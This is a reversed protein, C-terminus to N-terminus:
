AGISISSISRLKGVVGPLVALFYDVEQVTNFRGLTIRLSGRAQIPNQGLASLVHSPKNEADNSSCASGSSVAIGLDDLLLLLRIGEGEYGQFGFNIHNALRPTRPGNLYAQPIDALVRTIIRERLGTLREVEGEFEADCLEAARAFGVIGAVNETSSRLGREHGGGHQWPELRVQRVVLAGVGKPGYIKHSNITLLDIHQEEMDIKVKGFSQCADSHFYVGHKRCIKGLETVPEITGVENNAHMISVLITEPRIAKDLDDPDVLGEGNVPLVTIDFGQNSLWRCSNLVCDHEIASVIININNKKERGAFAVGKIALNNSETGGSTFIVEETEADVTRAIKERAQDIAQRARRGEAHLSSANGYETDFYPRMSETVRPDVRTGAANDFYIRKDM